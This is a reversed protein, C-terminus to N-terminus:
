LLVQIFLMKQNYMAHRLHLSLRPPMSSL